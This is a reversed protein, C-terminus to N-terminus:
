SASRARRPRRRRNPSSAVMGEEAEVRARVEAPLSSDIQLLEDFVQDDIEVELEGSRIYIDPLEGELKAQRLESPSMVDAHRGKFLGM